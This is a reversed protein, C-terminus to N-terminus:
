KLIGAGPGRVEVYALWEGDPSFVPNAVGPGDFYAGDVPRSETESLNRM